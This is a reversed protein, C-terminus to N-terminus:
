KQYEENIGNWDYIDGGNKEQYEEAKAKSAFANLNGGMPSPMKSTVLFYADQANILSEPNDFSTVYIHSHSKKTDKLYRLLCESSDFKYCRGKDTIAETGFKPDMIRMQCYHCNDKGYEINVQSRGCGCSIILIFLTYLLTSKM